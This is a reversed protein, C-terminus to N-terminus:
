EVEVATNLRLRWRKDLAGTLPLDPHLRVPHPAGSHVYSALAELRQETHDEGIWGVRRRMKPAQRNAQVARLARAATVHHQESGIAM